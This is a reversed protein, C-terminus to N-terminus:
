RRKEELPKLNTKKAILKDLRRPSMLLPLTWNKFKGPVIAYRTRPKPNHLIKVIYAGIFDIHMGKQIAEDLLRGVTQTAEEYPTGEFWEPHVAKAWAPTDVVGPALIIVDIGYILLERRLSHSIGELAHKSGAYPARFPGAIKGSTSGLNIIKGAQSPHQSRAGLQDLFAKTVALLGIVNVDFHEKIIELSTYQIPGGIAIGANNILCAIGKDQTAERVQDAATQVAAEDRVDFILPTYQSGFENQLREADAQKRISGFVQYGAQILARTAGYGIGSSVGTIVATKPPPPKM